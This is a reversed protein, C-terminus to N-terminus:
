LLSKAYILGYFFLTLFVMTIYTSPIADYNVKFFGHTSTTLRDGSKLELESEKNFDSFKRKWVKKLLYVLYSLFNFLGELRTLLFKYLLINKFIM